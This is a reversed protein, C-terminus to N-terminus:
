EFRGFTKMFKPANKGENFILDLVSVDHAFEGHLQHYPPYNSYDFYDLAVGAAAFMSEDMYAKAAPGTIYRTGGLTKCIDVLRQTRDEALDFESSWRISPKIGLASCVTVILAHNLESLLRFKKGLYIAEFPEKFQQFYPTAAYNQKITKWHQEAWDEEAIETDKIKQNFKGKVQVPVTLWHLGQPTKIKNRSRWDRRTFQMDDYIVFEDALNILDFYGKWPIYNSQTILVTKEAM